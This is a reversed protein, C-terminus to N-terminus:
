LHSQTTFRKRSFAHSGKYKCHGKPVIEHQEWPQEFDAPRQRSLHSVAPKDFSHSKGHHFRLAGSSNHMPQLEYSRSRTHSIHAMAPSVKNLHGGNSDWPEEYETVGGLAQNERYRAKPFVASHMLQDDSASKPIVASSTKFSPMYQRNRIDLSRSKVKSLRHSANVSHVLPSSSRRTVDDQLVGAESSSLTSIPSRNPSERTSSLPSNTRSSARSSEITGSPSIKRLEEVSPEAKILRQDVPRYKGGGPASYLQLRPDVSSPTAAYLSVDKPKILRKDLKPSTHPSPHPSHRPSDVRVMKQKALSASSSSASSGGSEPYNSHVNNERTHDSHVDLYNTKNFAYPLTPM